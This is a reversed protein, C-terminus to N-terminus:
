GSEQGSHSARQALGEGVAVGCGVGPGGVAVIGGRASAAGADSVVLVDSGWGFLSDCRWGAQPQSVGSPVAARPRVRRGGCRIVGTLRGSLSNLMASSPSRDPPRAWYQPCAWHAAAPQTPPCSVAAFRNLQAATRRPSSNPSSLALRSTNLRPQRPVAVGAELQLRCNRTPRCPWRNMMSRPDESGIWRNSRWIRSGVKPM